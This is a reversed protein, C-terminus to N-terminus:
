QQKPEVREWVEEITLGDALAGTHHWRTGEITVKFAHTKDRIVQFPAGMGYAPTESYTDGEVSYTGGAAAVVEGTQPEVRVWTFHTDTIHKFMTLQQALDSEVGGYKASVLKWTGIFATGPKGDAPKGNDDQQGAQATYLLLLFLAGAVVIRTSLRKM